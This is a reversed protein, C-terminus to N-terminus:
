AREFILNYIKDCVQSFTPRDYSDPLNKDLVKEIASKVKTQSQQDRHWDQVLVVPKEERLREYYSRIAYM